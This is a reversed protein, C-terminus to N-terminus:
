TTLLRSWHYHYPCLIAKRTSSTRLVSVKFGDTAQSAKYADFLKRRCTIARTRSREFNDVLEEVTATSPSVASYFARANSMSLHVFPVPMGSCDAGADKGASSAIDEWCIGTIDLHQTTVPTKHCDHGPSEYDRLTISMISCWLRKGIDMRLSRVSVDIIRSTPLRSQLNIDDELDQPIILWLARAVEDERLLTFPSERTWGPAPWKLHGQRIEGPFAM